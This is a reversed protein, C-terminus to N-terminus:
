CDARNDFTRALGNIQLTKNCCFRRVQVALPGIAAIGAQRMARVPHSRLGSRPVLAASIAESFTRAVGLGRKGVRGPRQGQRGLTAGSLRRDGSGSELGRIRLRALQTSAHATGGGKFNRWGGSNKLFPVFYERPPHYLPNSHFRPNHAPDHRVGLPLNSPRWGVRSPSPVRDVHTCACNKQGTNRAQSPVPIGGMTRSDSKMESVSTSGPSCRPMSGVSM